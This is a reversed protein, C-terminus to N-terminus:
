RLAQVNTNPFLATNETGERIDRPITRDFCVRGAEHSWDYPIKETYTLEARPFRVPEDSAMDFTVCLMYEYDNVPLYEFDVDKRDILDLAYPSFMNRVTDYEEPLTQNERYFHEIVLTAENLVEVRQSDLRRLREDGPSGILVFSGIVSALAIAIIIYSYILLATQKKKHHITELYYWLISGAVFLIAVIKLSFRVTLEGELFRLLLSILDGIIVLAAIFLTFYNLWKRVRVNRASPDKKYIRGLFMRTWIYIPFVVILLTIGWRVSSRMSNSYYFTDLLPDPFFYNVFQFLLTLLGVASLYLAFTSLLHLFFDRPSAHQKKKM